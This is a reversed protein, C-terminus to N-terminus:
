TEEEKPFPKKRTPDGGMNHISRVLFDRFQAQEAESFGQVLQAENVCIAKHVAEDVEQGKSLLCIRKCRHDNEDPYCTIFGKKELRALLGSVTPHSLHFTEEIDRACPPAPSHSIFGLVHGQSSTLEWAEMVESM